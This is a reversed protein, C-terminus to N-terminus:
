EKTAKAKKKKKKGGAVLEHDAPLRSKLELLAAVDDDACAVTADEERMLAVSDALRQVHTQWEFVSSQGVTRATSYAGRPFRTLFAKSDFDCPLALGEKALGFPTATSSSLCMRVVNFRTLWSSRM